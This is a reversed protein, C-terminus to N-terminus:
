YEDVVGMALYKRMNDERAERALEEEREDEEDQMADMRKEYDKRDQEAERADDEDATEAELDYYHENKYEEEETLPPPPVVFDAQSIREIVREYLGYKEILHETSAGDQYEEYILKAKYGNPMSNRRNHANVKCTVWRCNSPEYIGENDIRDIQHKSTTRPGMGEIFSAFSYRWMDCVKIGRGGYYKYSQARKNHCRDKMGSWVSYEKPYEKRMRKEYASIKV